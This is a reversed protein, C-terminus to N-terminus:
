ILSRVDAFATRPSYFKPEAWTGPAEWVGNVYHKWAAMRCGYGIYINGSQFDAAKHDYVLLKSNKSETDLISLVVYSSPTASNTTKEELGQVFFPFDVLTGPPMPGCTSLSHIVDLKHWSKRPPDMTELHVIIDSKPDMDLYVDMNATKAKPVGDKLTILSGSINASKARDAAWYVFLRLGDEQENQVYFALRDSKSNIGKGPVVGKGKGKGNSGGKGNSELEKHARGVAYVRVREVTVRNPLIAMDKRLEQITRINRLSAEGSGVNGAEVIGHRGNAGMDGTAPFKQVEAGALLASTSMSRIETNGKLNKLAALQDDLSGCTDWEGRQQAVLLAQELERIKAAATQTCVAVKDADDLQGQLESCEKWRRAVKAAALREKLESIRRESAEKMQHEETRTGVTNAVTSGEKDLSALETSLVSWRNELEECRSWAQAGAAKQIEIKVEEMEKTLAEQKTGSVDAVSVVAYEDTLTALMDKLRRCENWDRTNIAIQYAENTVQVKQVVKELHAARLQLVQCEGWRSHKSAEALKGTVTDMMRRVVILADCEGMGRQSGRDAGSVKPASKDNKGTASESHHGAQTKEPTSNDKAASTSPSSKVPTVKESMPTAPPRKPRPGSGARRAILEDKEFKNGQGGKRGSEDEGKNVTRQPKSSRTTRSPAQTKLTEADSVDVAASDNVAEKAKGRTSSARAPKGSQKVGAADTM